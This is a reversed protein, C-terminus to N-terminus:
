IRRLIITEEFATTAVTRAKSTNKLTTVNPKSRIWQAKRKGKNTVRGQSDLIPVSFQYQNENAHKEAVRLM